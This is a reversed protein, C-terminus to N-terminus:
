AVIFSKLYTARGHGLPDDAYGAARCGCAGLLLGQKGCDALSHAAEALM